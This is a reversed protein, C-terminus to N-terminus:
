PCISLSRVASSRTRRLSPPSPDNQVHDVLGARGAKHAAPSELLQLDVADYHRGRLCRLRLARPLLGIPAVRHLESPEMPGALQRGDVHRVGDILRDAIQGPRTRVRHM